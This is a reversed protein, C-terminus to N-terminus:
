VCSVHESKINGVMYDPCYLSNSLANKYAAEHLGEIVGTFSLLYIVPSLWCLCLHLCKCIRVILGNQEQRDAKLHVPVSCTTVTSSTSIIFNYECPLGKTEPNVGPLGQAKHM